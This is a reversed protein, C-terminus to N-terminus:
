VARFSNLNRGLTSRMDIEHPVDNKGELALSWANQGDSMKQVPKSLELQIEDMRTAIAQQEARLADVTQRVQKYEPSDNLEKLTKM